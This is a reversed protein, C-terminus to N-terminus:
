SVAFAERNKRQERRELHRKRKRAHAEEAELAKMVDEYATIAHLM